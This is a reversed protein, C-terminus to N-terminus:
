LSIRKFSIKNQKDISYYNTNVSLDYLSYNTLTYTAVTEGDKTILLKDDSFEKTYNSPGLLLNNDINWNCATCDINFLAGKLDITNNTNNIDYVSSTLKYIGANKFNYTDVVVNNSDLVELVNNNIQFHYYGSYNPTITFHYTRIDSLNYGTIDITKNNYDLDFYSSELSYSKYNIFTYTDLVNSGVKILLKDNEIDYSNPLVNLRNYLHSYQYGSNTKYFVTSYYDGDYLIEGNLDIIKNDNDIEYYDSWVDSNKYGIIDYSAVRIGGRLINLKHDGQNYSKSFGAGEITTINNLSTTQSSTVISGSNPIFVDGNLNITKNINDIEYDGSTIRYVYINGYTYCYNNSIKRCITVYGPSNGVIKEQNFSAISEDSSTPSYATILNINPEVNKEEGVSMYIPSEFIPDLVLNTIATNHSLDIESLENSTLYLQILATNHSLDIESLQNNNLGLQTLATNHSLDIDSLENSTLYLQTLATNHSLDIESLQNATINLEILSVNSSLDINSIQNHHLTLRELSSDNSLDINNIENNNISLTTIPTNAIIVNKLKVDSTTSYSFYTISTNSLNIYELPNNNISVGGLISNHSLDISNIQNNSLVVGHLLSNNSFDISNIQNNDLVVFGLSPNQSFDVTRLENYSAQIEDLVSSSGMNIDQLQNRNIFVKKLLSNNSFDISTLNNTAIDIRTLQTNHSLDIESLQNNNLYLDTIATNHSLDIGTLQNDGLSLVTLNENHSLDISTLQNGLMHLETLGSLNQLGSANSIGKSSASIKTVSSLKATTMANCNNTTSNYANVVASYFKLDTFGYELGSPNTDSRPQMNSPIETCTVTGKMKGFNIINLNYAGTFLITLVVALSVGLMIFSKKKLNDDALKPRGVSRKEEKKNLLKM